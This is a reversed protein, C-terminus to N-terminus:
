AAPVAGGCNPCTVSASRQAPADDGGLTAPAGSAPTRAASQQAAATTQSAFHHNVESTLAKLEDSDWAPILMDIDDGLARLEEALQNYDWSTLEGTRNDLIRYQRAQEETLKDAVTVPVTKLGLQLAALRRTHGVIIVGNKDVVIPGRRWGFQKIGAAVTDVAQQDTVRPNNPYPKVSGIKRMTIKM